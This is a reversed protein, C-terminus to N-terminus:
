GGSNREQSRRDLWGLLADAAALGTERDTDNLADLDLRAARDEQISGTDTM